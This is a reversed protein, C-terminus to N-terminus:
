PAPVDKTLKRSLETSTNKLEDSETPPGVIIEFILGSFSSTVTSFLTITPGDLLSM